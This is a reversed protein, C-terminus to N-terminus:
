CPDATTRGDQVSYDLLWELSLLVIKQMHTCDFVGTMLSGLGIVAMTFCLVVGLNTGM